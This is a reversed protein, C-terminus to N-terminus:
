FYELKRFSSVQPQPGDKRPVAAHDHTSALLLVPLGENPFFDHTQSKVCDKIQEYERREKYLLPSFLEGVARDQRSRDHLSGVIVFRQRSHLRLRV